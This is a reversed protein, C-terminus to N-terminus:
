QISPDFNAYYDLLPFREINMFDFGVSIAAVLAHDIRM